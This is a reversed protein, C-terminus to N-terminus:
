FFEISNLLNYDEGLFDSNWCWEASHTSMSFALIKGNHEVIDWRSSLPRAGEDTYTTFTLATKGGITEIEPGIIIDDWSLTLDEFFTNLDIGQENHYKLTKCEQAPAPPSPLEKEPLTMFFGISLAILISLSVTLFILSKSSFIM